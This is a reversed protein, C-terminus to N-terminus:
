QPQEVVPVCVLIINQSRLEPKDDFEVRFLAYVAAAQDESSDVAGQVECDEDCRLFFTRRVTWTFVDGAQRVPRIGVNGQSFAIIDAGQEQDDLVGDGDQDGISSTYRALLDDVFEEQYLELTYNATRSTNSTGQVEVTVQFLSDTDCSVIGKDVNIEVSSIVYEDDTIINESACFGALALLFILAAFLGVTVGNIM